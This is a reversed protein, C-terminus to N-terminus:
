APTSTSGIIVDVKDETILRRANKSSQTPDSADDLVVLKVKEGGITEPWMTIGNRTPIGLGSAPGTLPLSVGITIDAQANTMAAGILLCALSLKTAFQM